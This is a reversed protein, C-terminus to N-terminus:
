RPESDSRGHTPCARDSLMVGGPVEPCSCHTTNRRATHELEAAISAWARRDDRTMGRERRRASAGVIRRYPNRDLVAFMSELDDPEAPMDRLTPLHLPGFVDRWYIDSEQDILDNARMMKAVLHFVGVAVLVSGGAALFSWDGTFVYCSVAFTILVAGISRSYRAMLDLLETASM